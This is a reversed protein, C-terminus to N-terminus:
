LGWSCGRPLCWSPIYFNRDPPAITTNQCAALLLMAALLQGIRLVSRGM